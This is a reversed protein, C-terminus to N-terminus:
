DPRYLSAWRPVYVRFDNPFVITWGEINEWPIKGTIVWEEEKPYRETQGDLDYLFAVSQLASPNIGKPNIKYIYFKKRPRGKVAEAQKKAYKAAVEKFRSASAYDIGYKTLSRINHYHYRQTAYDVPLFHNRMIEKPGRLDGRYVRDPFTSLSHGLPSLLTLIYVFSFRLM